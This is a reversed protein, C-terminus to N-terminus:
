LIVGATGVGVVRGARNGRGSCTVAGCLETRVLGESLGTKGRM